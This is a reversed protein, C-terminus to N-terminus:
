DVACLTLFSQDSFFLSYRKRRLLFSRSILTL